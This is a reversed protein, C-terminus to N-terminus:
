QIAIKEDYHEGLMECGEGKWWSGYMIPSAVHRLERTTKSNMHATKELGELQLRILCTHICISSKVKENTEGAQSLTLFIYGPFIGGM